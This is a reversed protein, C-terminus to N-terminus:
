KKKDKEDDWQWSSTRTPPIVRYSGDKRTTKKMIGKTNTTITPDRSDKIRYKSSARQRIYGQSKVRSVPRISVDPLLNKLNNELNFVKLLRIFNELSINSGDEFRRITNVSVGSRSALENQSVNRALRISRLNKGLEDNIIKSSSLKYNICM